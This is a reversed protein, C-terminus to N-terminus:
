QWCHLQQLGFFREFSLKITAIPKSFSANQEGQLSHVQLSVHRLHQKLVANILVAYKSIFFYASHVVKSYASLNLGFILPRLNLLAFM